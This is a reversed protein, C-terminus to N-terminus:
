AVAVPQSRAAASEYARECVKIVYAGDEPDVTPPRDDHVAAIFDKVGAIISDFKWRMPEYPIALPMGNYDQGGRFHVAPPNVIQDVILSGKSGYIELREGWPIEATFTYDTSFIAGNALKGTVFANDEVESQPVLKATVAQIEHVEGFLWKLLYFSHPGADLIAGGVTGDKRGKWLTPDSLRRVESGYILTRIIRPEGLEGAALLRAAEVYAAVFRTNEAVTFKVNKERALDILERAERYTPVMPKEVLVHKGAELAAKCAAYHASHPLTIDVADVDPDNVLDEVRTYVRAGFTAAREKAKAEVVDCVAVVSADSGDFAFSHAYQIGGMGILGFGVKSM